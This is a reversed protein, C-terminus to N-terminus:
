RPKRQGSEDASHLMLGSYNTHSTNSAIVPRFGPLSAPTNALLGLANVVHFYGKHQM